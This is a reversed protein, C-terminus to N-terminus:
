AKVALIHCLSLRGSKWLLDSRLKACPVGSVARAKAAQRPLAHQQPAVTSLAGSRALGVGRARGRGAAKHQAWVSGGAANLVVGDAQARAASPTPVRHGPSPRTRANSLTNPQAVLVKARLLPKSGRGKGARAPVAPRPDLPPSLPPTPRRGPPNLATSATPVTPATPAATPPPLPALWCHVLHDLVAVPIPHRVTAISWLLMAAMRGSAVQAQGQGRGQRTGQMRGQAQQQGRGQGLGSGQAWGRGQGQAVGQGMGGEQGEGQGGSQATLFVRLTMDMLLPHHVKAKALSVALGVLDRLAVPQSDRLAAAKNRPEFPTAQSPLAAPDLLPATATPPSLPLLPSSPSPPPFLPRAPPRRLQSSPLAATLSPPAHPAQSSSPHPPIPPQPPPRARESHASMLGVAPTSSASAAAGGRVGIAGAGAGARGGMGMGPGAGASGQQGAQQSMRAAVGDALVRLLQQDPEGWQSLAWAVVSLTETSLLHSRQRVTDALGAKLNDGACLLCAAAGVNSNKVLLHM